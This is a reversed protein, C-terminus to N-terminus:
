RAAEQKIALWLRYVENRRLGSVRAAHRVAEFPATQAALAARLAASARARRARAAADEPAGADPAAGMGEAAGVDSAAAARSGGARMGEVVLTFEGRPPHASFRQLAERLRGRFVEEHVKTLERAVAVRRDGLVAELDELTRLLRHPAEYLVLTHPLAQVAEVARRREGRGAPLFGLFSVPATPLGSVVLAALFASPGPIPVIPIGADAAARVLGLGPDSLGPMGADSVLAVAEGRALRAVLAPARERENHAHLSVLRAPLGHHALLKRTHRTDEAAIVTAERLVRLARLSVDELNGIPTAVLYLTGPQLSNV